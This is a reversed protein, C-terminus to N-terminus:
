STSSAHFVVGLGGWIICSANHTVTSIGQMVLSIEKDFRIIADISAEALRLLKGTEPRKAYQSSQLDKLLDQPNAYSDLKNWLELSLKGEKKLDSFSSAAEKWVAEIESNDTLKPLPSTASLIPL